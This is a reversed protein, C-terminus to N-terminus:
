LHGADESGLWSARTLANNTKAAAAIGALPGAVRLPEPAVMREASKAFLPPPQNVGIEDIVLMRNGIAPRHIRLEASQPAEAVGAMRTPLPNKLIM